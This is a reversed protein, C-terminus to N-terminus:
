GLRSVTSRPIPRIWRPRPEARGSSRAHLLEGRVTDLDVADRLRLTFASVSADADYRARNFRRDLLYQVRLGARRQGFSGSSIPGTRPLSVRGRLSQGLRVRGRHRAGNKCEPYRLAPRNGLRASRPARCRKQLRKCPARGSVQGWDASVAARCPGPAGPMGRLSPGLPCPRTGPVPKANRVVSRVLSVRHQFHKGASHQDNPKGSDDRRPELAVLVVGSMPPEGPDADRGRADQHRPAKARPGHPPGCGPRSDAEVGSVGRAM